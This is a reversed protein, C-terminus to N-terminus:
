HAHNRWKESVMKRARYIRTEITRLNVGFLVAIEQMSLDSLYYEKIVSSYIEPLDDIIQRIEASKEKLAFIERPSILRSWSPDAEDPQINEDDLDVLRFDKAMKKKCNIATNVAIRAIWGKFNDGRFTSRSAYIKHVVEQYIDDMGAPDKLINFIIKKLYNEHATLIEDFTTDETQFRIRTMPEM